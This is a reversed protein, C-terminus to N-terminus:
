VEGMGGRGLLSVLRFPGIARGPDAGRAGASARRTLAEPFDDAVPGSLSREDADAALLKEVEARLHPEVDGLLARREEAGLDLARDVLAM